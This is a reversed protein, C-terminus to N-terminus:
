QTESGRQRENNTMVADVTDLLSRILSVHSKNNEKLSIHRYVIQPEDPDSLWISLRLQSFEHKDNAASSSIDISLSNPGVHSDNPTSDNWAPTLSSTLLPYSLDSIAQHKVSSSLIPLPMGQPLTM